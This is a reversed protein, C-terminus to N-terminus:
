LVVDTTTNLSTQLNAEANMDLRLSKHLSTLFGEFLM